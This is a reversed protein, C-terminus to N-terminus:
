QRVWTRSVREEGVCWLEHQDEPLQNESMKRLLERRQTNMDAVAKGSRRREKEVTDKKLGGVRGKKRLSIEVFKRNRAKDITM